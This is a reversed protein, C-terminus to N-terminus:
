FHIAGGFLVTAQMIGVGPPPAPTIYGRSEARVSFLRTVRFDAGVAVDITGRAVRGWRIGGGAVAYLSWRSAPMWKARVGPTLFFRSGIRTATRDGLPFQQVSGAIMLPIEFYLRRPGEEHIQVAYNIEGTFTVYSVGNGLETSGRFVSPGILLGLENNQALAPLAAALIWLIAKPLIRM